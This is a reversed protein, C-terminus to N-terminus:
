LTRKIMKSPNKNKVYQIKGRKRVIKSTKKLIKDNQYNVILTNNDIDLILKQSNFGLYPTTTYQKKENEYTEYM